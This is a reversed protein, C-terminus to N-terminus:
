AELVGPINIRNISFPLNPFCLSILKLLSRTKGDAREAKIKLEQEMKDHTKKKLENKQYIKTDLCEIGVLGDGLEAGDRKLLRRM